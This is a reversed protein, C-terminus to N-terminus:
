LSVHSQRRLVTPPCLSLEASSVVLHALSADAHARAPHIQAFKDASPVPGDTVMSITTLSGIECLNGLTRQQAISSVRKSASYDGTRISHDNKMYLIYSALRSSSDRDENLLGRWVARSCLLNVHWTTNMSGLGISMSTFHVFCWLRLIM